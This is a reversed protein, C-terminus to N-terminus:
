KLRVGTEPDVKITDRKIRKGAIPLDIFLVRDDYVYAPDFNKYAGNLQNYMSDYKWKFSGNSLDIKGVMGLTSVYAFNGDLVPNGPNPTEFKRKWLADNAGEKYAAFYSKVGEHDTEQWAVFYTGNVRRVFIHDVMFEAKLDFLQRFHRRLTDSVSIRGKYACYYISDNMRIVADEFPTKNDRIMEPVVVVGKKQPEVKKKNKKTKRSVTSSTDKNGSPVDAGCSFFFLAAFLISILNNGTRFM